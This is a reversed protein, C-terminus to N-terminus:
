EPLVSIGNPTAGPPYERVPTTQGVGSASLNTRAPEFINGWPYRNCMGSSLQEPWGGAKQWEAAIPLRKGVWRAYAVAEYWCVGVVPHEAKGAPFKGNEWERPGPRGSLDTFRAM